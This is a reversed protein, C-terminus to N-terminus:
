RYGRYITVAGFTLPFGECDKFGSNEMLKLFAEGYPFDEITKNLYRYAEVDGSIIKGMLPVFYRLYFLHLRKLIKNEPLSFELILLTGGKKLVRGIDRLAVEPDPVNRIGFAMTAVDFKGNKAPIRNADGQIFDARNKHGNKKSKERGYGLMNFSMDLGVARRIYPSHKLLSFIVDGTGAALDLLYQGEQKKLLKSLKKRWRFDIGFSLVHNLLDYRKYIRDFIKWAKKKKESYKQKDPGMQIFGIIDC